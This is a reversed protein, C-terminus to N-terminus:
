AQNGQFRFMLARPSLWGLVVAIIFLAPVDGFLHGYHHPNALSQLGMVAGHTLSSWITFSILSLHGEPNRAAFWLFVGLTAYITVIMELYESGGVQWVWGAPWFVTLPYVCLIFLLAVLRLAARLYKLRTTEEM